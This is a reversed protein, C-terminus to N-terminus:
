KSGALRCRARLMEGDDPGFALADDPFEQGFLQRRGEIARRIEICWKGPDLLHGGLCLQLAVAPQITGSKWEVLAYKGHMLGACDIRGRVNLEKSYVDQEIRVPIFGTERIFSDRANLYGLLEKPVSKRDLNGLCALAVLKHIESGKFLDDEQVFDYSTVGSYALVRTIGIPKDKM